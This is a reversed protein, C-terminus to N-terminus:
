KWTLYSEYGKSDVTKTINHKGDVTYDCSYADATSATKVLNRPYKGYFEQMFLVPEVGYLIPQSYGSDGFAIFRKAPYDTYTYTMVNKEDIGTYGTTVSDINGHLWSVTTHGGDEYGSIKSLQGDTDYSFTYTEEYGANNIVAKTIKGDTLTYTAKIRKGEGTVEKVISDRFYTYSTHTQKSSIIQNDVTHISKKSFGELRDQGDYRFDSYTNGENDSLGTLRGASLKEKENDNDHTCSSFLLLLGLTAIILTKNMNLTQNTQEYVPLKGM